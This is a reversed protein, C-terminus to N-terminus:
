QEKASRAQQVCARLGAAAEGMDPAEAVAAIVAIGDAGAAIVEAVNQCTIGGIALLPLRVARRIQALLSVGIADGADPKSPTAFVPGVGLYSAGAAQAEEAESVAGASAGIVAGPGMLRRAIAVPLDTQGFHVGDADAALAIDLRDNVIFAAGRARTLHRLQVAIDLLSRSDLEKERLQIITAGGELAARAVDLHTRGLREVNRTIVCLDYSPM